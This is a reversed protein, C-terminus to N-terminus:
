AGGLVRDAWDDLGEVHGAVKSAAFDRDEKTLGLSRLLSGAVPGDIVPAGSCLLESVVATQTRTM